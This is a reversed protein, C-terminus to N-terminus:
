LTTTSPAAQKAKTVVSHWSVCCLVTKAVDCQAACDESGCEGGGGQGGGGLDRLCHTQGGQCVILRPLEAVKTGVHQVWAGRQRGHAVLYRDGDSVEEVQVCWTIQPPPHKPPPPTLPVLPACSFFPLPM